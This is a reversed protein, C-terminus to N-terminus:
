RREIFQNIEGTGRPALSGIQVPDLMAPLTTRFPRWEEASQPRNTLSVSASGAHLVIVADAPMPGRWVAAIAKLLSSKGSDNPGILVNFPGLQVEVDHLCRFNKVTVKTIM